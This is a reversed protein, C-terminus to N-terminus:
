PLIWWAVPGLNRVAGDGGGSGEISSGLPLDMLGGLEPNCLAEDVREKRGCGKWSIGRVCM